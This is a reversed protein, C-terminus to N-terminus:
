QENLPCWFLHFSKVSTYKAGCECTNIKFPPKKAKIPKFVVDTQLDLTNFQCLVIDIVVLEYGNPHLDVVEAKVSRGKDHSWYEIEEGPHLEYTSSIQDIPFYTNLFKDMANM